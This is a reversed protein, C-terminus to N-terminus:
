EVTGGSKMIALAKAVEDLVGGETEGINYPYGNSYVVRVRTTSEKQAPEIWIGLAVTHGHELDAKRSGMMYGQDKHEEIPDIHHWKMAAHGATWVQDLPADFTRESGGGSRGASLVNSQSGSCGALGVIMAAALITRM